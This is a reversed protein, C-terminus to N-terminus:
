TPQGELTPWYRHRIGNGYDIHTSLQEPVTYGLHTLLTHETDTGPRQWPGRHCEADEYDAMLRADELKQLDEPLSEFVLLGRPDPQPLQPGVGIV